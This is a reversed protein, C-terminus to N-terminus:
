CSSAGNVPGSSETPVKGSENVPGASETNTKRPINIKDPLPTTSGTSVVGNINKMETLVGDALKYIRDCFQLAEPRHAISIVTKNQWWGGLAEVLKLATVEDLASTAEDLIVNPADKAIARAISIRQSQGGSFNGGRVGAFTDLGEPLTGIWDELQAIRVAEQVKEEPVNHGCTINERITLPFLSTSQMVVAIDGDVHLTGSQLSYLGSILKILTSKGSGSEGVIGIKEGAAVSLNIDKLVIKEGYAYNINKLSIM